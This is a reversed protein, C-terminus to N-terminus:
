ISNFSKKLKITLKSSIAFLATVGYKFVIKPVDVSSAVREADAFQMRFCGTFKASGMSVKNLSDGVVILEM